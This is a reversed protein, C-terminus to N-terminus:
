RGLLSSDNSMSTRSMSTNKRIMGDGEDAEEEVIEINGGCGEVWRRLGGLIAVAVIGHSITPGKFKVSFKSARSIPAM